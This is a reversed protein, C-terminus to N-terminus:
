FVLLLIVNGIVRRPLYVPRQAETYYGHEILWTFHADTEIYTLLALGAMSVTFGVILPVYGIIYGIATPQEAKLAAFWFLFAAAMCILAVPYILVFVIETGM